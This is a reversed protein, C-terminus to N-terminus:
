TATIVIPANANEVDLVNAAIGIVGQCWHSHNEYRTGRPLGFNVVSNVTRINYHGLYEKNVALSVPWGCARIKARAADGSFEVSGRVIASVATIDMLQSVNWAGRIPGSNTKIVLEKAACDMSIHGSNSTAHITEAQVNDANIPKTGAYLDIRQSIVSCISTKAEPTKIVISKDATCQRLHVGGSIAVFKAATQVAVDIADISGDGTALRLNDVVVSQMEIVGQIVAADLRGLVGQKINQVVLQTNSPLRLLLEHDGPRVLQQATTLEGDTAMVIDTPYLTPLTNEFLLQTEDFETYPPPMEDLHENHLSLIDNDLM